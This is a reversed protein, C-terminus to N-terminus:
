KLESLDRVKRGPRPVEIKKPTEEPTETAFWDEILQKAEDTKGAEVLKGLRAYLEGTDVPKDDILFGGNKTEPM